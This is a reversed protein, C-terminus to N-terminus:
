KPTWGATTGSGSEKVFLTTNAGGATNAVLDGPVGAVDGNPDGNFTQIGPTAVIARQLESFWEQWARSVRGDKDAIPDRYPPASLRM